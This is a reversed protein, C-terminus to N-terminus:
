EVILPERDRGVRAAIAIRLFRVAARRNKLASSSSACGASRSSHYGHIRANPSPLCTSAQDAVRAGAVITSRVSSRWSDSGQDREVDGDGEDDDSFQVPNPPPREPPAPASTLQDSAAASSAPAIDAVDALAESLEDLPDELLPQDPLSEDPPPEELPPEDPPPPPPPQYRLRAIVRAGVRRSRPITTATIDFM